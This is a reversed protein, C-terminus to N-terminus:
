KRIENQIADIPMLPKQFGDKGLCCIDGAVLAENCVYLNVQVGETHGPYNTIAYTYRIVQKGCCVALDFGQALQLENYSLYPEELTDPFLFQLTEVPESEVNWGLSQLYSTRQTNDELIPSTTNDKFPRGTLLILVVMMIGFIIVSIVAKKRSFRATWILM